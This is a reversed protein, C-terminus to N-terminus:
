TPPKENDQHCVVDAAFTYDIYDNMKAIDNARERNGVFVIVRTGESRFFCAALIDIFTSTHDRSQRPTMYDDVSNSDTDM